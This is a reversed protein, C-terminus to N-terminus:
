LWPPVNSAITSLEADTLGSLRRFADWAERPAPRSGDPTDSGYLVREMGIQRLRRAVLAAQEKTTNPDIVTTVDFWLKKTRPDKRAIAEALVGLAEDSFPDLRGPSGLHAVQVGIDPAAALLQELFIEGVQKGHNERPALHVTIPFKKANAAAFVARVLEVDHPNSFDVRSNGLHLKLGKFKGSAVCRELEQLAHSKLPNVSCFAVLRPSKAVEAATWDNERKLQEYEGPTEERDSAFQYAVSHVVARQIGADDLAKILVAALVPQVV